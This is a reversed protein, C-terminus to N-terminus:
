RPAERYADIQIQNILTRFFAGAKAPTTLDFVWALIALAVLAAVAYRVYAMREEHEDDPLPPTLMEPDLPYKVRM